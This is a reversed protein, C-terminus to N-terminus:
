DTDVGPAIEGDDNTSKSKPEPFFKEIYAENQASFM